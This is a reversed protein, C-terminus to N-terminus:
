FVFFNLFFEFFIIVQSARKYTPTVFYIITSFLNNNLIRGSFPKKQDGRSKESPILFNQSDHKVYSSENLKDLFFDGVFVLCFDNLFPVHCKKEKLFYNVFWLSNVFM